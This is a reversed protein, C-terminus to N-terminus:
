MRSRPNPGSVGIDQRNVKGMLSVELPTEHLCFIRPLKFKSLGKDKCFSIFTNPTISKLHSKSGDQSWQYDEKLVFHVCVAEGLRDHPTGKVVVQKLAPHQILIDEIETPHINEGGSKIMDKIRGQLWLAGHDDISGVDGTKFWDGEFAQETANSDAWYGKM